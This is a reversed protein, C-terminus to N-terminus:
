RCRGSLALKASDRERRAEALGVKPYPGISLAKEVGGRRYKLRWLRSGSPAIFLYLGGADTLKYGKERPLADKIRRDTLRGAKTM